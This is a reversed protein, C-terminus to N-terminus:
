RLRGEAAPPGWRGPAPDLACNRCQRALASPSSGVGYGWVVGWGACMDGGGWSPPSSMRGDTKEFPVQGQRSDHGVAQVGAGLGRSVRVEQRGGAASPALLHSPARPLTPAGGWAPVADSGPPTPPTGETPGCAQPTQASGALVRCPSWHGRSGSPVSGPCVHGYKPAASGDTETGCFAFHGM